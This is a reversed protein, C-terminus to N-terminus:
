SSVERVTEGQTAWGAPAATTGGGIVGVSVETGARSCYM